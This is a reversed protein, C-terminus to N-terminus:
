RPMPRTTRSRTGPAIVQVAHVPDASDSLGWALPEHHRAAHRSQPRRRAYKTLDYGNTLM